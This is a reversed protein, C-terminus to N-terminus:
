RIHIEIRSYKPQLGPIFKPVVKLADKPLVVRREIEAEMVKCRDFSLAENESYVYVVVEAKQMGSDAKRRVSLREKIYNGIEDLRVSASSALRSGEPLFFQDAAISVIWEKDKQYSVANIKMPECPIRTQNGRADFANFTFTYVDGTPVPQGDDSLGDWTIAAPPQGKGEIRRVTEGLSNAIVLEWNAVRKEFSPFFILIDELPLSMEVPVRLFSSRIFHRLALLSDVARLLEDDFVYSELAFLDSVTNWPDFRPILFIKQDTIKMEAAGTVLEEGLTHGAGPGLSDSHSVASPQRNVTTQGFILSFLMLLLM